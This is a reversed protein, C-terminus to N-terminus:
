AFLTKMRQPYDTFLGAIGLRGYHAMDTTCNVTFINVQKGRAHARQIQRADILQHNANYTDFEFQGWDLFGEGAGGILAQVPLSPRLAAAERLWHHNFSSIIVQDKAMELHDLLGLIQAVLPFGDMQAPLPKLELNVRWQHQKTLVLAEEVTPVKEGRCADQQDATLAQAAIQGFPDRDLFWSGADLRRIEALTFQHVGQQMRRPFCHQVNTTRLLQTDHMLVLHGDATVAVDTEWLDAGIDFAKQAALLTNEPALSRAGRHAINTIM